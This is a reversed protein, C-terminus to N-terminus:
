RSHTTTGAWTSRRIPRVSFAHGFILELVAAKQMRVLLRANGKPEVTEANELEERKHEEENAFSASAEDAFDRGETM